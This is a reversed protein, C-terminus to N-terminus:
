KNLQIDNKACTRIFDIIKSVAHRRNLSLLQEIMLASIEEDTVSVIEDSSAGFFLDCLLTAVGLVVSSESFTRFRWEGNIAEGKIWLGSLCGPVKCADVREEQPLLPGIPPRETLFMLRDEHTHLALLDKVDPNRLLNREFQPHPSGVDTM